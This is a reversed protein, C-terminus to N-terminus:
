DLYHFIGQAMELWLRRYRGITAASMTPTRNADLIIAEGDVLIYDFRGFDVGLQQRASLLRAPTDMDVARRKVINSGKIVPTPAKNIVHFEKNGLVYWFRLCYLGADDRETYLRQVVLNRNEWVGTPVLDPTRFVPYNGPDLCSTTRWNHRTDPEPIGQHQLIKQEPMGGSNFRTKVIVPGRYDNRSAVLSDKPCVVTKSIDLLRGNLAIPFSDLYAAYEPPTVTLDVQNIVVRGELQKKLGKQLVVDFGISAFIRAMLFIAYNYKWHGPKLHLSDHAHSLIVIDHM